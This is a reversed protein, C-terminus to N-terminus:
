KKQEEKDVIEDLEEQEVTIRKRSSRMSHFKIRVPCEDGGWGM